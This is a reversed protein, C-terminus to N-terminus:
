RHVFDAAFTLLIDTGAAAAYFVNHNEGDGMRLVGIALLIAAEMALLLGPSYSALTTRAEAGTLSMELRRRFTAGGLAVMFTLLLLFPSVTGGALAAGLPVTASVHRCECRDRSVSHAARFIYFLNVALVAAFLRLIAPHRM